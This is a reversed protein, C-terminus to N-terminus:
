GSRRQLEIALSLNGALSCLREWLACSAVRFRVSKLTSRMMIIQEPYGTPTSTAELM